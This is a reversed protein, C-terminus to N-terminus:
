RSTSSARACCGKGARTSCRRSRGRRSATRTRTSSKTPSASRRSRRIPTSVQDVVRGVEQNSRSARPQIQQALASADLILRAQEHQDRRRQARARGIRRDGHREVSWTRPGSAASSPSNSHPWQARRKLSGSFRGPSSTPVAPGGGRGGVPPHRIRRRLDAHRRAPLAATTVTAILTEALANAAAAKAGRRPRGVDARRGHHVGGGRSIQGRHRRHRDGGDLDRAVRELDDQDDQDPRRGPDPRADPRRREGPGRQRPQLEGAPLPNERDAASDPQVQPLTGNYAAYEISSQNAM